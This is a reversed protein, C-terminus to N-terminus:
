LIILVFNTSEINDRPGVLLIALLDNIKNLEGVAKASHQKSVVSISVSTFSTEEVNNTATVHGDLHVLALFNLTLSYTLRCLLRCLFLIYEKLLNVLPIKIITGAPFLCLSMFVMM